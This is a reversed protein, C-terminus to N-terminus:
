ELELGLGLVNFGVCFVFTDMQNHQGSLRIYEEWM